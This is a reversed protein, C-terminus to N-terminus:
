FVFFTSSFTFANGNGNGNGFFPFVSKRSTGNMTNVVNM